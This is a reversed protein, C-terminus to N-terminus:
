YFIKYMVKKTSFQILSSIKYYWIRTLCVTSFYTNNRGETMKLTIKTKFHVYHELLLIFVIEISFRLSLIKQFMFKNKRPLRHQRTVMKQIQVKNPLTNAPNKIQVIWTKYFVRCIIATIRLISAFLKPDNYFLVM